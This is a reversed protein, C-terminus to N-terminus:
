TLTRRRRLWGVFGAGISGLLLAAPAPIDPTEPTITPSTNNIFTATGGDPFGQAQLAGRVTGAELRNVVDTTTVDTSLNLAVDLSEDPNIGNLEVPMNSTLVFAGMVLAISVVWVGIVKGQFAM